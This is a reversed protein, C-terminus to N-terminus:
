RHAIKNERTLTLLMKGVTRRLLDICSGFGAVRHNSRVWPELRCRNVGDGDCKRKRKTCFDCSGRLRRQRPAARASKSARGAPVTIQNQPHFLSASSYVSPSDGALFSERSNDQEWPSGRSADGDVFFRSENILSSTPNLKTMPQGRANTRVSDRYTFTIFYFIM